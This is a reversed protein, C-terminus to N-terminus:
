VNSEGIGRFEIEMRIDNFLDILDTDKLGRFQKSNVRAVEHKEIDETKM